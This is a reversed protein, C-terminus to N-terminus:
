SAASVQHRSEADGQQGTNTSSSSKTNVLRVSYTMQKQQDILRRTEAIVLVNLILIIIPVLGCVLLETVWSWVSWLSSSGASTVELACARVCVYVAVRRGTANLVQVQPVLKIYAVLPLHEPFNFCATTRPLAFGAGQQWRAFSVSKNVGTRQAIAPSLLCISRQGASGNVRISGFNFWTTGHDSWVKGSFKM